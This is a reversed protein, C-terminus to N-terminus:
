GEGSNHAPSENGSSIYLPKIGSNAIEIQGMHAAPANSTSAEELKMRIGVAEESSFGETVQQREFTEILDPEVDGRRAAAYFV